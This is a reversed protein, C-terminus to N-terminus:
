DITVPITFMSTNGLKDEAYITYTGNTYCNIINNTVEKGSYKFYEENVESIEYKIKEVDSEMDRVVLTLVTYGTQKKMDISIVPGENDSNKVEYKATDQKGNITYVLTVSYNGHIGNENVRIRIYNDTVIKESISVGHTADIFDLTAEKPLDINMVIPDKTIEVSSVNFIVDKIKVPIYGLTNNSIDINPSLKENLTYHENNKYSVGYLYYVKGTTKSIAYFDNAVMNNGFITEEIGIASLDLEYLEVVNNNIIEGEFQSAEFSNFGAISFDVKKVTPYNGTEIYYNDAHTKINLLEAAFQGKEVSKVSDDGLYLMVGTLVSLIVVAVSLTLLSIGKKM